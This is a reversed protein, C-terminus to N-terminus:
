KRVCGMTRKWQGILWGFASHIFGGFTLFHFDRNKQLYLPRILALSPFMSTVDSERRDLYKLTCACRKPKQSSPGEKISRIIMKAPWNGTDHDMLRNPVLWTSSPPQSVQRKDQKGITLGASGLYDVIGNIVVTLTVNRLAVSTTFRLDQIPVLRIKSRVEKSSM